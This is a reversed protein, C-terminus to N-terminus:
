NYKFSVDSGISRNYGTQYPTQMSRQRRNSVPDPFNWEGKLIPEKPGYIRAAIQM